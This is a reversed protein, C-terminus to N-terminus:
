QGDDDHERLRREGRADQLFAQQRRVSVRQAEVLDLQGRAERDVDVRGPNVAGPLHRQARVARQEDAGDLRAVDVRDDVVVPVAVGVLDDRYRLPQVHRVADGEAAARQVHHLYAAQQTVIVDLLV